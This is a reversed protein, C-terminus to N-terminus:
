EVDEEDEDSDTNHEELDDETQNNKMYEASVTQFQAIDWGFQLSPYLTIIADESKDKPDYDVLDYKKFIKMAASLKKSDMDVEYAKVKDILDGLMVVNEDSYGLNELYVEWLVLLLHYQETTFSVVNARKLGVAEEDAEHPKLMAIRVNTDVLVDFGIMRLYDSVDQRNSERSIFAYLKDDKDGVIFTSDLLKRICRKFLINNEEKVSINLKIDSM